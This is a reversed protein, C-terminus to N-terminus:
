IHILSLHREKRIMIISLFQEIYGILFAILAAVLISVFQPNEPSFGWMYQTVMDSTQLTELLTAGQM